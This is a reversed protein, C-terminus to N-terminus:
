EDNLKQYLRDAALCIRRGVVTTEDVTEALWKLYDIPLDGMKTGKHKGFPMVIDEDIMTKSKNMNYLVSKGYFQQIQETVKIEGLSVVIKIDDIDTGM